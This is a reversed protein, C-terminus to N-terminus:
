KYKEKVFKILKKVAIEKKFDKKKEEIIEVFKKGFVKKMYSLIKPEPFSGDLVMMLGIITEAKEQHSLFDSNDIQMYLEGQEVQTLKNRIPEFIIDQSKYEEILHMITEQNVLGKYKEFYKTEIIPEDESKKRSFLNKLTQKM